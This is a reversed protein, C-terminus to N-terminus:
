RGHRKRIKQMVQELLSNGSENDMQPHVSMDHERLEDDDGMQESALQFPSEQGEEASLLHDNSMHQEPEMVDDMDVLGGQSMKKARRKVSYAIALAQKPDKGASM